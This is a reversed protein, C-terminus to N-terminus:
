LREWVNERWGNKELTVVLYVSTCGTRERVEIQSGVMKGLQKYTKALSRAMKRLQAPTLVSNNTGGISLLLNM